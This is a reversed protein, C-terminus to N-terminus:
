DKDDTQSGKEDKIFDIIKYSISGRFLSITNYIVSKMEYFVRFVFMFYAGLILVAMFNNIILNSTLTFNPELCKLVLVLVITIGLSISYLFLASEYYKISKKLHSIGDEHSIIALKKIYSDNLFALLISYVTFIVGFVALLINLLVEVVSLTIDVTNEAIGIKCAFIFSLILPIIFAPKNYKDPKIENFADRIMKSPKIPEIFEEIALFYKRKDSDKM